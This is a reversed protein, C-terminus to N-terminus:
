RKCRRERRYDFFIELEEKERADKVGLLDCCRRSEQLSESPLLISGMDDIAVSTVHGPRHDTVVVAVLIRANEAVLYRGWFAKALSFPLGTAERLTDVAAALRALKDSSLRTKHFVNM